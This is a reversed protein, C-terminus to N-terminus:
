QDTSNNDDERDRKSQIGTSIRYLGVMLLAIGIILVVQNQEEGAKAYIAVCAGLLIIIYNVYKPMVKKLLLGIIKNFISPM